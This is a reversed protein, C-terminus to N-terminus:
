SVNVRIGYRSYAFVLCQYINQLLILVFINLIFAM